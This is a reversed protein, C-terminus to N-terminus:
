INLSVSDTFYNKVHKLIYHVTSEFNMPFLIRKEFWEFARALANALIM